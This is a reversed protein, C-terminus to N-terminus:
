HAAGPGAQAKEGDEGILKSFVVLRKPAPGIYYTPYCTILTLQSDNVPRIVSLDDPEVVKKGVVQYRFTKGERQVLVTDGKELEHIHRFFTDRHGTIVSNGTEGPAPTDKLHGPGLLLAKHNTGEVIVSDLDIKPVSLRTLGDDEETRSAGAAPRSSPSAQQQRQWEQALHRQELYMEGYQAGVYGLLLAGVIVLVPSVTQRLNRKGLFARTRDLQRGLFERARERHFGSHRVQQWLNSDLKM